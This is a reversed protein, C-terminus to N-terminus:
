WWSPNEDKCAHLLQTLSLLMNIILSIRVCSTFLNQFPVVILTMFFSVHARSWRRVQQLYCTRSGSRCGGIYRLGEGTEWHCWM